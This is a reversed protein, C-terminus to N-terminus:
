RGKRGTRKRCMFHLLMWGSQEPRPIWCICEQNRWSNRAWPQEFALTITYLRSTFIMYLWSQNIEQIKKLLIRFSSDLVDPADLLLITRRIKGIGRQRIYDIIEQIAEPSPEVSSLKLDYINWNPHNEVCSRAFEALLVTKGEAGVSVVSVVGRMGDERFVFETFDHLQRRMASSHVCMGLASAYLTNDWSSDMRDFAERVEKKREEDMKKIAAFWKADLCRLADSPLGAEILEGGDSLHFMYGVGSISKFVERARQSDFSSDESRFKNKIRQIQQKIGATQDGSLSSDFLGQLMGTECVHERNEVLYSLILLQVRTLREKIAGESPIKTRRCVGSEMDVFLNNGLRVIYRM